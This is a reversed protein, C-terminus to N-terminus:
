HNSSHSQPLTHIRMVPDGLFYRYNGTPLEEIESRMGVSGLVFMFNEFWSRFAHTEASCDLMYLKNNYLTAWILSRKHVPTIQPVYSIDAMTAFGNGLGKKKKVEHLRFYKYEKLAFQEWFDQGLNANVVHDSVAEPFIKFRGDETVRMRCGAHQNQGPARFTVVDDVNENLAIQWTDPVKFSMRSEPDQWVYYEANAPLASLTIFLVSLCLLFRM